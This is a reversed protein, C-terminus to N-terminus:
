RWVRTNSQSCEYVYCMNMYMITFLICCMANLMYSVCFYPHKYVSANINFLSFASRHLLGSPPVPFDIM